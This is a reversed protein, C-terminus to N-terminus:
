ADAKNKWIFFSIRKIQDTLKLADKKTEREKKKEVDDNLKLLKM